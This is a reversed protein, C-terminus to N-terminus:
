LYCITRGHFEMCDCRCTGLSQMYRVVIRMLMANNKGCIHKITHWISYLDRSRAM